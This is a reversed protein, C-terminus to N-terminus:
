YNNTWVYNYLGQNAYFTSMSRTHAMNGPGGSVWGINVTVQQMNSSYSTTFSLPAIVISGTYMIGYGQVSAMGINNTESFWNTFSQVLITTNTLQTPSFLRVGEMKDQMVRTARLNERSTTTMFLGMTLIAFVSGFVVAMVAAGMMVEILSFASRRFEIADKASVAIKM